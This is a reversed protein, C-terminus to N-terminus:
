NEEDDDDDDHSDNDTLGSPEDGVLPEECIITDDTMVANLKSHLVDFGGDNEM